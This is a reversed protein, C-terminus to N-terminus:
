FDRQPSKKGGGYVMAGIRVKLIFIKVEKFFAIENKSTLGNITQRALQLYRCAQEVSMIEDIADKRGNGQVSLM